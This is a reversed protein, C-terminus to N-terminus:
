VANDCRWNINTHWVGDHRCNLTFQLRGALVDVRVAAGGRHLDVFQCRHAALSRAPEIQVSDASRAPDRPAILPYTNLRALENKLQKSQEDLQSARLNDTAQDIVVAPLKALEQDAEISAAKAADREDTAKAVADRARVLFANALGAGATQKQRAVAAEEAQEDLQKHRDDAAAQLTGRQAELKQVAAPDPQIDFSAALQQAAAEVLIAQQDVRGAIFKDAPALLARDPVAQSIRKTQETLRQVFAEQQQHIKTTLTDAVKKDTDPM